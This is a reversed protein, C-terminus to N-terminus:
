VEPYEDLKGALERLAYLGYNFMKNMPQKLSESICRLAIWLPINTILGHSIIKGYLMGSLYLQKAHYNPFFKYEDFLTRIICAFLAQENIHVSSKFARLYKM